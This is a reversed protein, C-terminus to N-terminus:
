SGYRADISARIRDLSRGQRHMRFALRAQGQCIPCDLAM